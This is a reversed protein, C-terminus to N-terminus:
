VEIGSKLIQERLVRKLIKGSPLVPLDEMAMVIVKKPVKYGAMNEKCHAIIEEETVEVGPYPVVVAAVAEMWYENPM